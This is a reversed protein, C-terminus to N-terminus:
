ESRNEYTRELKVLIPSVIKLQQKESDNLFLLRLPIQEFVDESIFFVHCELLTRRILM